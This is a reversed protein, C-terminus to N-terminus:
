SRARAEVPRFVVERAAVTLTALEGTHTDQAKRYTFKGIIM